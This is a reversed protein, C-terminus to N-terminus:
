KLAKDLTQRREQYSPKGNDRQYYGLATARYRGSPQFSQGFQTYYAEEFTEGEKKSPCDKAYHSGNCLECGVQAVYVNEDMKKLYRSLKNLQAKIAAYGDSTDSSKTRISTGDHWKHSHDLIEQIARRANVASM